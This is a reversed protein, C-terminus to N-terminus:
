GVASGSRRQSVLSSKVRGQTHSHRLKEMLFVSFFIYKRVPQSTSKRILMPGERESDEIGNGYTNKM